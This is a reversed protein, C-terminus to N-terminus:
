REELFRRCYGCYKYKVYDPNFSTRLCTECRIALTGDARRLITYVPTTKEVTLGEGGIPM